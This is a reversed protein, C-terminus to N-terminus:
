MPCTRHFRHVLTETLQTHEITFSLAEGGGMLILGHRNLNITGVTVCEYHGIKDRVSRKVGDYMVFGFNVSHKRHVEALANGVNEPKLNKLSKPLRNFSGFSCSSTTRM